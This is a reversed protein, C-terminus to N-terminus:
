WGAHNGLAHTRKQRVEFTIAPTKHRADEANQQAIACPHQQRLNDAVGHVVEVSFHSGCLQQVEGPLHQLDSRDASDKKEQRAPDHNAYRAVDFEIQAVVQESM